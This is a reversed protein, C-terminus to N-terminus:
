DERGNLLKTMATSAEGVRVQGWVSPVKWATSRFADNVRKDRERNRSLKIHRYEYNATPTTAHDPCGHWYCGNAFVAVRPRPFVICDIVSMGAAEIKPHKHLRLDRRHLAAGLHLESSTDTRRSGRM